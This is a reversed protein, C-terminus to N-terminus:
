PKVLGVEKLSRAMFCRRGCVTTYPWRKIWAPSKIPNHCETCIDGKRGMKLRDEMAEGCGAFAAVLRAERATEVKARVISDIRDRFTM